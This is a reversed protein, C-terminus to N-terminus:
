KKQQSNWKTDGKILYDKDIVGKTKDGRFMSQWWYKGVYKGFLPKEKTYIKWHGMCTHLKQNWLGQAAKAEQKKGIPKLILIKYEYPKIPKSKKLWWKIKKPKAVVTELGINKCNLFLLANNLLIMGMLYFSNYEQFQPAKASMFVNINKFSNSNIDIKDPNPTFIMQNLEPFYGAIRDLQQTSLNLDKGDINVVVYMGTVTWTKRQKHAFFIEVCDLDKEESLLTEYAPNVFLSVTTKEKFFQNEEMEFEIYMSKRFPNKVKNEDRFIDSIIVTDDKIKPKKVGKKYKRLDLLMNENGQFYLNETEKSEAIRLMETLLNFTTSQSLEEESMDLRMKGSNMLKMFAPNQYFTKLIERMRNEIEHKLM